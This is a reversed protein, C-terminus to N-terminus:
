KHGDAQAAIFARWCEKELQTTRRSIEKLEFFAKM